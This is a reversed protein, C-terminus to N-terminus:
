PFPFIARLAFNEGVAATWPGLLQNLFGHAEQRAVEIAADGSKAALASVLSTTAPEM